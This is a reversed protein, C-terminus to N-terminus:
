VPKIGLSFLARYPNHIGDPQKLFSVKAIMENKIREMVLAPLHQTESSEIATWWEEEDAYVFESDEVSTRINELGADCLATELRAPTDFRSGDAESSRDPAYPRVVERWWNLFPCDESWASIAVRGGPRLVRAFEHLARRPRAFSSLAFGCLVCDFMEDGLLLDQADMEKVQVNELDTREMEAATGRAKDAARDVAIV